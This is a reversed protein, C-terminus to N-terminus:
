KTENSDETNQPCYDVATNHWDPKPDNILM